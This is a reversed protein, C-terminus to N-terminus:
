GSLTTAAILALAARRLPFVRPLTPLLTAVQWGSAVDFLRVEGTALGAALTKGDPSFAVDFAFAWAGGSPGHSTFLLQGTAVKWIRV